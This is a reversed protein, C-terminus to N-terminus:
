RMKFIKVRSVSAANLSNCVPKRKSIRKIQRDVWNEKADDDDDDQLRIMSIYNQFTMKDTFVALILQDNALRLEDSIRNQNAM